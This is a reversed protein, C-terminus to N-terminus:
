VPVGSEYKVVQNIVPGEHFNSDLNLCDNWGENEKIFM